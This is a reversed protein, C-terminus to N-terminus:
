KNEIVDAYHVFGLGEQLGSRFRKTVRDSFDSYQAQSRVDASYQQQPLPIATKMDAGLGSWRVWVPDKSHFWVRFLYAGAAFNTRWNWSQQYGERVDAREIGSALFVDQSSFVCRRIGGSNHVCHDELHRDVDGPYLSDLSQFRFGNPFRFWELFFEPCEEGEKCVDLAVATIAQDPLVDYLLVESSTDYLELFTEKRPSLDQDELRVPIGQQYELALEDVDQTADLVRITEALSEPRHTSWIQDQTSAMALQAADVALRGQDLEAQKVVSFVSLSLLVSFLSSIFFLAFPM